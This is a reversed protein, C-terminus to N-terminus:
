PKPRPYTPGKSSGGGLGRDGPRPPDRPLEDRPTLARRQHRGRALRLQRLGAVRLRTRWQVLLGPSSPCEAGTRNWRTFRIRARVVCGVKGGEESDDVQM